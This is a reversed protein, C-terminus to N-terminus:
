LPLEITIITGNRPSSDIDFKGKLSIVRSNINRFGYSNTKLKNSNMDFGIGDDIIMLTINQQHEILQLEVESANAHKNINNLVEQAIRFLALEIKFDFKESKQYLDFTININSTSFINKCYAKIAIVLGFDVLINPSINTYIGKIETIAQEVLSITKEAYLNQQPSSKDVSSLVFEANLKAAALISNVSDHLDAAIRVRENEQGTLIAEIESLKAEKIQTINTISGLYELPTGDIDRKFVHDRFLLWQWNKGQNSARIEFEFIHNERDESIKSFHAKTLELDDPHITAILQELTQIKDYDGGLISKGKTIFLAKKTKLDMIYSISLSANSFKQNLLIQAKLLKRTKFLQTTEISVTSVGITEKQNNKLPSAEIIWSQNKGSSPFSIERTIRKNLNLVEQKLKSLALTGENIAIEEDRKGLLNKEDIDPHSNFIWTYELNKNTEAMIMNKGIKSSFLRNQLKVSDKEKLKKPTKKDLFLIVIDQDELSHDFRIDVVASIKKKGLLAHSIVSHDAIPFSINPFLNQIPTGIFIKKQKPFFDLASPNINIILGKQNILIIGNKASDFFIDSLETLNAM